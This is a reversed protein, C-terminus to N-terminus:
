ILFVQLLKYIKASPAAFSPTEIKCSFVAPAVKGSHYQALCASGAATQALAVCSSAEKEAGRLGLDNALPQGGVQAAGSLNICTGILLAAVSNRLM